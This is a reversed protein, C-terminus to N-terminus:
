DFKPWITDLPTHKTQYVFYMKSLGVKVDKLLSQCLKEGLFFLISQICDQRWPKVYILPNVKRRDFNSSFIM